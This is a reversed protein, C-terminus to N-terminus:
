IHLEVKEEEYATEQRDSGCVKLQLEGKGTTREDLIVLRSKAISIVGGDAVARVEGQAAPENGKVAFVGLPGETHLKSSLLVGGVEGIKGGDDVKEL